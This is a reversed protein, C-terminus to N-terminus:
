EKFSVGNNIIQENVKFRKEAKIVKTENDFVAYTCIGVDASIDNIRNYMKELMYKDYIDDSDLFLLYKGCSQLLGINRAEAAGVHADILKVRTDLEKLENLYEYVCQDSCDDVIIIEFCKYSSAFISNFCEDLFPIPTNYVPIIVSISVKEDNM